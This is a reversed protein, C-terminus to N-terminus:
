VEDAAAAFRDIIVVEPRPLMAGGTDMQSQASTCAALALGAFLAGTAALGAPGLAPAM